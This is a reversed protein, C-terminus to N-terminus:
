KCSVQEPAIVVKGLSGGTSMGSGCIECSLNNDLSHLLAREYSHLLSPPDHLNVAKASQIASKGDDHGLYM